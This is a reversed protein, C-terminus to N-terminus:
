LQKILIPAARHGQPAAADEVTIAIAEVLEPAAQFAQPLSLSQSQKGDGEVRFVQTLIAGKDDTTFPADSTLVTWLVYVQGPELPPLNKVNLRGTLAASNLDVTVVVAAVDTVIQSLGDTPQLAVQRLSSQAVEEAQIAAQLLQSQNQLSRWLWYNSGALAAIAAAAIAGVVKAWRPLLAARSITELPPIQNDIGMVAQMVPQNIAQAVEDELPDVSAADSATAAAFAALTADRLQPPPSLEAPWYTAELSAETQAILADITQALAPDQRLAQLQEAEEPDLDNLVYGSILLALAEPSLSPSTM